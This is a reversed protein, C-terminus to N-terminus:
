ARPSSREAAGMEGVVDGAGPTAIACDAPVTVYSGTKPLPAVEVDSACHDISELHVPHDTM